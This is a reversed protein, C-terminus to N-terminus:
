QQKSKQLIAAGSIDVVPHTFTTWEGNYHFIDLGEVTWGALSLIRAYFSLQLWYKNLKTNEISTFPASLFKPSDKKHIDGNTKYDQVRCRKEGTILLRDISGCIMAENNVVFVEYMAEEQVEAQERPDFFERVAQNLIPNDHIHSWKKKGPEKDEDLALGVHQYKGYLELAKHIADGISCSADAKAKWMEKIEAGPVGYKAEMKPVIFDANFAPCFQEAFKSGSLLEQGFQNTYTHTVEDFFASQGTVESHLEPVQAWSQKTGPASQHLQPLAKGVEAYQASIQEIHRFAEAKAAEVDEGPEVTITAQINAYQATPIVATASIGTIRM